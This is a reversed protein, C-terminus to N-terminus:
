RDRQLDLDQPTPHAPPSRRRGGPPISGYGRGGARRPGVEVVVGVEVKVVVRDEVEVVMGDEVEVVMGDEVEVVVGDEVEVVVEVVVGDELEVEVEAEVGVRVVAGAEVGAEVGVEAPARAEAGPTAGLPGRWRVITKMRKREARRFFIIEMTERNRGAEEVWTRRLEEADVHPYARRFLEITARDVGAQPLSPDYWLCLDVAHWLQDVPLELILAAAAVIDNHALLDQAFNSAPQRQHWESELTRLFSWQQDYSRGFVAVLLGALLPTNLRRQAGSGVVVSDSGRSTPPSTPTPPEARGKGM